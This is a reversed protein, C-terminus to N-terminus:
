GSARQERRTRTAVADPHEREIAGHVFDDFIFTGVCRGRILEGILLQQSLQRRALWITVVSVQKVASAARRAVPFVAATTFSEAFRQGRNQLQTVDDISEGVAAILHWGEAGDEVLRLDAVDRM